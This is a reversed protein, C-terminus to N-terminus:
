LLLMCISFPTLSIDEEGSKEDPFILLSLQLILLFLFLHQSSIPPARWACSFALRINSFATPIQSITFLEIHHFPHM